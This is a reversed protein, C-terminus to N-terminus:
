TKLVGDIEVLVSADLYTSTQFAERWFNQCLEKPIAAASM